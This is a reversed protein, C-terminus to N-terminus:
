GLLRGILGGSSDEEEQEDLAERLRLAPGLDRDLGLAKRNLRAAEQYNERQWEAMSARHWLWANDADFHLAEKYTELAKDIEGLEMYMDGVNSKLRLRQPVTEASNMAQQSWELAQQLDGAKEWYAMEARCLYYHDSEQQHLYDLVLRADDLRGAYIYIFPEIANIDTVDPALEQAKELWVLAEDLGPQYYDGQSDRSAIVLTYAIGAYEYPLSNATQFVRLADGLTKPDGRYADVKDRGVEFAKYGATTAAETDSLRLKNLAPIMQSVLKKGM